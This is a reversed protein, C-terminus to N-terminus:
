SPSSCLLHDDRELCYSSYVLSYEHIKEFQNYTSGIMIGSEVGKDLAHSTNPNRKPYSGCARFHALIRESDEQNYVKNPATFEHPEIQLPEPVHFRHKKHSNSQFLSYPTKMELRIFPKLNEPLIKKYYAPIPSLAFDPVIEEFHIENNNRSTSSRFRETFSKTLEECNCKSSREDSCTRRTKQLISFYKIERNSQHCLLLLHRLALKSLIEFQHQRSLATMKLSRHTM